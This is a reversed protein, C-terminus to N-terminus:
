RWVLAPTGHSSQWSGALTCTPHPGALHLHTLPSHAMKEGLQACSHPLSPRQLDPSVRSSTPSSLMAESGGPKEGKSAM